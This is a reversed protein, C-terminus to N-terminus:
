SVDPIGFIEDWKAAVNEETIAELTEKPVGREKKLYLRIQNLTPVDRKCYGAEKVVATIGSCKDAWLKKAEDKVAKDALRQKKRQERDSRKKLIMDHAAKRRKEEESM